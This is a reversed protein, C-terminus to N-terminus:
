TGAVRGLMCTVMEALANYQNGYTTTGDKSVLRNATGYPSLALLHATLLGHGEDTRDGWVDAAIRLSALDLKGLVLFDPATNFEPFGSRFAVLTIM